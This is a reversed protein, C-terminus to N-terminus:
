GKKQDAACREAAAASGRGRCLPPGGGDRWGRGFAAPFATRNGLAAGADAPWARWRQM